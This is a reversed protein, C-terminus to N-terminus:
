ATYMPKLLGYVVGATLVLTVFMFKLVTKKERLLLTVIEFLDVRQEEAIYQGVGAPSEFSASAPPLQAVTEQFM